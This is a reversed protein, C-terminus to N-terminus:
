SSEWATREGRVVLVRGIEVHDGLLWVSVEQM